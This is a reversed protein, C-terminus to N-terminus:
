YDNKIKGIIELMKKMRESESLDVYEAFERLDKQSFNFWNIRLGDKLEKELDPALNRKLYLYDFLAKASSAVKIQFEGRRVKKFGLFLEKKINRYRFTGLQNQFSRSTKLTVSTWVYVAEPILGAQALVYELSLYSPYRLVNALYQCYVEKDPRSDLYASTVYWGKKLNVLYGKKRLQAIKKDLNWGTKGILVAATKKNFYPLRELEKQYKIGSITIM